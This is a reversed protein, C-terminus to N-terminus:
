PLLFIPLRNPDLIFELYASTQVYTLLRSLRDHVTVSIHLFPFIYRFYSYVSLISTYLRPSYVLVSQPREQLSCLHGSITILRVDLIGHFLVHTDAWSQSFTHRPPLQGFIYTPASPLTPNLICIFHMFEPAQSCCM